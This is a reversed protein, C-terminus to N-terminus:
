LLNYIKDNIEKYKDYPRLCHYDTYIGNKINKELTDNIKSFRNRNLRNFKTNKDKLIILNNTKSNWIMVHNYLDIQDTSWGQKGSGEVYKIRKSVDQLRKKIDDITKISFINSWTNKTAVNYCMAIQKLNLLVDRLYILKDDSYKEINKIYYTRNMPIMDIDTIMIGNKYNLIAPYLLRIYQSTFSTSINPLPKFLIINNKYEHLNEPINDSILIIKTNVNPYLKKWTKIFIPIFNIYLPKKNCATLVCDLKM